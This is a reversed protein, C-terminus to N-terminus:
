SYQLVGQLSPLLSYPFHNPITSGKPLAKDFNLAELVLPDNVDLVTSEAISALISFAHFMQQQDFQLFTPGWKQYLEQLRAQTLPARNVDSHFLFTKKQAQQLVPIAQDVWQQWPANLVIGTFNGPMSNNNQTPPRDMNNNANTAIQQNPVTNDSASTDSILRLVARFSRDLACQYARCSYSLSVGSHKQQEFALKYSEFECLRDHAEAPTIARQERARVISLFAPQTDLLDSFTNLCPYSSPRLRRTKSM